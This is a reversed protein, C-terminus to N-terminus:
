YVCSDYKVCSGFSTYSSALRVLQKTSENYAEKRRSIDAAGEKVTVGTMGSKILDKAPSQLQTLTYELMERSLGSKSEVSIEKLYTYIRMQIDESRTEPSIYRSEDGTQLQSLLAEAVLRVPMVAAAVVASQMEDVRDASSKYETVYDECISRLRRCVGQGASVADQLSVGVTVGNSGEASMRILSLVSSISDQLHSNVASDVYAEFEEQIRAREANADLVRGRGKGERRKELRQELRRLKRDKDQQLDLLLRQHEAEYRCIIEKGADMMCQQRDLVNLSLMEPTHKVGNELPDFKKRLKQQENLLLADLSRQGARRVEATHEKREELDVRSEVEHETIMTDLVTSMHGRRLKSYEHLMVDEMLVSQDGSSIGGINVDIGDILLGFGGDQDGMGEEVSSKTKANPNLILHVHKKVSFLEDEKLHIDLLVGVVESSRLASGNSRGEPNEGVEYVSNLKAHLEDAIRNLDTGSVLKDKLYLYLEELDTRRMGWERVGGRSGISTMISCKRYLGELQAHVAHYRSLLEHLLQEDMTGQQAIQNLTAMRHVEEDGLMDHLTSSSETSRRQDELEFYRSGFAEVAADNGNHKDQKFDSHWTRLDADLYRMESAWQLMSLMDASLSSVDQLTQVVSAAFAILASLESVSVTGHNPLKEGGTDECRIALMHLSRSFHRLHEDEEEVCYEDRMGAAEEKEEGSM